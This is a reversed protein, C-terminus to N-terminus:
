GRRAAPVLRVAAPVPRRRRVFACLTVGLGLLVWTAPEPVQATTPGTPGTRETPGGPPNFGGNGTDDNGATDGANALGPPAAGENWPMPGEDWHCGAAVLANFLDVSAPPMMPCKVGGGGGDGSGTSGPGPSGMGGQEGADGFTGAALKSPDTGVIGDLVNALDTLPPPGFGGPGSPFGSGSGSGAFPGHGLGNEPEERPHLNSPELTVPPPQVGDIAPVDHGSHGPTQATSGTPPGSDPPATPPTGTKAGIGLVGQWLLLILVAVGIAVGRQRLEQFNM